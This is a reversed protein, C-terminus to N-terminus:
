IPHFFWLHFSSKIFVVPVLVHLVHSLDVQIFANEGWIGRGKRLIFASASIVSPFVGSLHPSAPSHFPRGPKSIVVIIAVYVIYVWVLVISFFHAFTEWGCLSCYICQLAGHSVPPPTHPAVTNALLNIKIDLHHWARGWRCSKVTDVWWVHVLGKLIQNTHKWIFMYYEVSHQEIRMEKVAPAARSFARCGWSLFVIM